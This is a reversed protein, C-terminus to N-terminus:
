SRLYWALWPDVGIKVSKLGLSGFGHEDAFIRPWQKFEASDHLWDTGLFAAAIM